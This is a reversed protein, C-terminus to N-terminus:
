IGIVEGKLGERIEKLFRKIEEKRRRKVIKFGLLWPGEPDVAILACVKNRVIRSNTFFLEDLCISSVKRGCSKCYDM